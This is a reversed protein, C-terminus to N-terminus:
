LLVERIQAGQSWAGTVRFYYIKLSYIGSFTLIITIWGSMENTKGQNLQGSLLTARIKPTLILSTKSYQKNQRSPHTHTPMPLSHSHTTGGERGGWTSKFITIPSSPTSITRIATIPDMQRRLRTLISAVSMMMSTTGKRTSATPTSLRKMMTCEKSTPRTRACVCM